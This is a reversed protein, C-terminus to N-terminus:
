ESTSRRTQSDLWDILADVRYRVARKGIRTYPPGNGKLRTKELYSKSMGAIAAAEATRVLRIEPERINMMVEKSTAEQYRSM